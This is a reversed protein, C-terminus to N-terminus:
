IPADRALPFRPHGEAGSSPGLKRMTPSTPPLRSSTTHLGAAWAPQGVEMVVMRLAALWKKMTHSLAVGAVGGAGSPFARYISAVPVLVAAPPLTPPGGGSPSPPRSLSWTRGLGPPSASM